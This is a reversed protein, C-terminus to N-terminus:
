ADGASEYIPAFSEQIFRRVANAIGGDALNRSVVKRVKGTARWAGPMLARTAPPISTAVNIIADHGAVAARVADPSFLDLTLPVAGVEVLSRSKEVSRSVATVGHGGAILLPLLRRGIVGTAGAVFIKM